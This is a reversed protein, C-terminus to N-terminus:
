LRISDHQVFLRHGEFYVARPVLGQSSDAALFCGNATSEREGAGAIGAVGIEHTAGGLVNCARACQRV